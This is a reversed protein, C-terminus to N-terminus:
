DNSEYNFLKKLESIASDRDIAVTTRSFGTLTEINRLSLPKEYKGSLNYICDLVNKQRFTLKTMYEYLKEELDNNIAISEPNSYNNDELIEGFTSGDQENSLPRDLSDKNFFKKDEMYKKYSKQSFGTNKILEAETPKKNHNQFYYDEYNKIKTNNRIIRIPVGQSNNKAICDKLWSFIFTSFKGKNPDFCHIKELYEIFCEEFLDEKDEDSVHMQKLAEFILGVNSLALTNRAENDGNKIRECLQITQEESLCPYNKIITNITKNMKEGM